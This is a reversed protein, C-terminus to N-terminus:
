ATLREFQPRDTAILDPVARCVGGAEDHVISAPLNHYAETARRM